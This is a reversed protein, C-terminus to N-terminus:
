SRAGAQFYGNIKKVRHLFFRTRTSPNNGVPAPLTAALEIAQRRSLRYVPIGWYHRAAAEVGYVGRGFEAVNLYYELIRRKRLRSEMALTLILEHWKRLPDRSASLFLNKATQQSITSGGYAFRKQSLNYQMAERLAEFDVGGHDYFRSDEALVVARLLDRPITEIPMPNWRLAPWDANRDRAEEYAEIFSSRRLPGEAYSDWDPWITFLYVVDAVLLVFFVRLGWRLGSKVAALSKHLRAGPGTRNGNFMAGLIANLRLRVRQAVGPRGSKRSSEAAM